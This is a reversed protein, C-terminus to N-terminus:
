TQGLLEAFTDAGHCFLVHYCANRLDAGLLPCLLRDLLVFIVGLLVSRARLGLFLAEIFEQSLTIVFVCM